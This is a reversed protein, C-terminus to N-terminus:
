DLVGADRLVARAAEYATKARDINGSPTGACPVCCGDVARLLGSLAEALAPAAAILRANADREEKDDSIARAIIRLCHADPTADTMAGIAGMYRAKWPGPTHKSM